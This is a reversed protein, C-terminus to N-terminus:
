LRLKFCRRHTSRRVRAGREADTEDVRWGDYWAANILVGIIAWFTQRCPANRLAIHPMTRSVCRLEAPLNPGGCAPNGRTKSTTAIPEHYWYWTALRVEGFCASVGTM